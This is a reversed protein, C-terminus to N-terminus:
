RNEDGFVEKVAELLRDENYECRDGVYIKSNKALKILKKEMEYVNKIHKIVRSDQSGKFDDFQKQQENIFHEYDDLTM